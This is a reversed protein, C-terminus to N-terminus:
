GKTRLGTVDWGKWVKKYWDQDDKREVHGYWRLRKSRLVDTVEELGLLTRLKADTKRSRLSEGCMNRVMRKDAGVIIDETDKTMPWTESGYLMCRRICADFVRGKMWLSPARSSLLPSLERFKNWGSQMRTTAALEAGGSSDLMDGLYCFKSVVDFQEGEVELRTGDGAVSPRPMQGECRRCRYTASAARLCGRIGSCRKHVWHKCATCQISNASVGKRCISCPHDGRDQAPDCSTTSLMVQTKKVNVKLGKAALSSKWAALKRRLEEESDAM